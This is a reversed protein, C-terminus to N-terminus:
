HCQLSSHAAQVACTMVDLGDCCIDGRVVALVSCPWVGIPHLSICFEFQSDLKLVLTVHLNLSSSGPMGASEVPINCSM